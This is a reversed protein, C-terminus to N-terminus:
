LYVGGEVREERGGGRGQMRGKDRVWGWCGGVGEWGGM